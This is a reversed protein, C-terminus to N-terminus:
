VTVTGLLSSYDNDPFVIIMVRWQLLKLAKTQAATPSSHWLPCAYEAVLFQVGGGKLPQIDIPSEFIYL